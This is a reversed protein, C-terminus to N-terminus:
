AFRLFALYRECIKLERRISRIDTDLLLVSDDFFRVLTKAEKRKVEEVFRYNIWICGDCHIACTPFMFDKTQESILIPVKQKIQLHKQLARKRGEYTSGYELCWADLFQLPSMNELKVSGEKKMIITSTQYDSSKIWYIM